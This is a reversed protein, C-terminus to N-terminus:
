KAPSQAMTRRLLKYQRAESDDAIQGLLNATGPTAFPLQRRVESCIGREVDLLFEFASAAQKGSWMSARGSAELGILSLDVAIGLGISREVVADYASEYAGYLDGLYEHDAFFTPGCAENHAAHAYLQAARLITALETM